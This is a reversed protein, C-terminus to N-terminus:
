AGKVLELVKLLRAERLQVRSIVHVQFSLSHAELFVMWSARHFLPIVVHQLKGLPHGQPRTLQLQAPEARLKSSALPVEQMCRCVVLLWTEPLNIRGTLDEQLEGMMCSSNKILNETTTDKTHHEYMNTIKDHKNSGNM